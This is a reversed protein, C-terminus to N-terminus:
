AHCVWPATFDFLQQAFWQGVYQQESPHWEYKVVLACRATSVVSAPFHM